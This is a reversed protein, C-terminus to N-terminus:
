AASKQPTANELSILFAVGCFLAAVSAVGARLTVIVPESLTASFGSAGCGVISASFPVNLPLDGGVFVTCASNAGITSRTTGFNRMTAVISLTTGSEDPM